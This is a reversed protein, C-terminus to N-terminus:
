STLTAYQLRGTVLRKYTLLTKKTQISIDYKKVRKEAEQGFAIRAKFNGALRTMAASLDAVSNDAYVASKDAMAVPCIERDILVLPLGLAAAEMLVLGQTEYSSAHVYIDARSVHEITDQHTCKGTFTVSNAIGLLQTLSELHAREPGDGVVLLNSQPHTRLVKHFANIIWDVRKERVLRCSSVFTVPGDKKHKKHKAIDHYDIGSPIIDIISERDITRLFKYIKASPAIVADCGKHYSLITKSVLTRGRDLRVLAKTALTNLGIMLIQAPILYRYKNITLPDCSATTVLPIGLSRKIHLGLIGIEFPTFTHIIDFKMDQLDRHVNPLWVLAHHYGEYLKSPISPISYIGDKKKYRAEPRSPCVVTVEHGLRELAEKLLYVSIAIGDARPLYSDTFLGIRM